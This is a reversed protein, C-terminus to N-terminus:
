LTSKQENATSNTTETAKHELALPEANEKGKNRILIVKTRTLFFIMSITSIIYISIRIGTKVQRKNPFPIFFYLIFIFIIGLFILALLFIAL